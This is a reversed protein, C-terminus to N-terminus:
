TNRSVAKQGRRRIALAVVNRTSDAAYTHVSPRQKPLLCAYGTQFGRAGTMRTENCRTCCLKNTGDAACELPTFPWAYMRMKGLPGLLELLSVEQVKTPVRLITLLGQNGLSGSACGSCSQPHRLPHRHM